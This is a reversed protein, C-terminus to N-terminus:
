ASKQEANQSNESVVRVNDVPTTVERTGTAPNDRIETKLVADDTVFIRLGNHLQEPYFVFSDPLVQRVEGTLTQENVKVEVIDKVKIQELVLQAKSKESM